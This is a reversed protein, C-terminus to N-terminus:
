VSLSTIAIDGIVGAVGVPSASRRSPPRQGAWGTSASGRRRRLHLGFAAGCARQVSGQLLTGQRGRDRGALAQQQMTLAPLM